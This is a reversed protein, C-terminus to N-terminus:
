CQTLALRVEFLRYRYNTNTICNGEARKLVSLTEVSLVVLIITRCSAMKIARIEKESRPNFPAHYRESGIKRTNVIAPQAAM